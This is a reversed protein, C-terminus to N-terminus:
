TLSPQTKALSPQNKSVSALHALDLQSKTM